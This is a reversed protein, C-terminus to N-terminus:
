RGVGLALCHTKIVEKLRKVEKSSINLYEAMHAIKPQSEGFKNIYDEPRMEEMLIDLIPKAEQPVSGRLKSIVDNQEMIMTSNDNRMRTAEMELNDKFTENGDNTTADFSVAKVFESTHQTVELLPLDDSEGHIIIGDVKYSISINHQKFNNSLDTILSIFEIPYAWHDFRLIYGTDTEKIELFEYLRRLSRKYGIDLQSDCLNELIDCIGVVAAADARVKVRKYRRNCPIKNERLIQRLYNFVWTQFWKKRQIPDTLASIAPKDGFRAAVAARMIAIRLDQEGIEKDQYENKITRALANCFERRCQQLNPDKMVTEIIEELEIREHPKLGKLIKNCLAGRLYLRAIQQFAV